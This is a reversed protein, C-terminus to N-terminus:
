VSFGRTGPDECLSGGNLSSHAHARGNDEAEERAERGGAKEAATM